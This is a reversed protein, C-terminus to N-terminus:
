PQHASYGIGDSWAGTPMTALTKRAAIDVAAVLNQGQLTVFATKGDPSVIVGEPSPSGPFEATSVIGTSPFVVSGLLKRSRVDYFRVAGGAPDTVVMTKSDPTVALRYPFGFGTITDAVTGTATMVVSVIKNKDSGTWVQDGSPTVAIGEVAPAVTLTRVFTRNVLDLESVTGDGVNTTFARRGDRTVAVMHSGRQQTPIATEITGKAFDLVLLSQNAESTVVFLSDGPLFASGHPRHYTGLDITRTVTPQTAGLHIVTLTNGPTGRPGYNSVVAWRGDHSIAVEHPAQGTPLTAVTRQGALDIVTATNDNMNAAVLTGHLQCAGRSALGLSLAVILFLRM